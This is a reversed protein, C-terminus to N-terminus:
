RSEDRGRNGISSAVAATVIGAGITFAVKADQMLAAQELVKWTLGAIAPASIVKAALAGVRAFVKSGGTEIIEATAPISDDKKKEISM